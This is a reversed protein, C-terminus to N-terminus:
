CNPGYNHFKIFLLKYLLCSIKSEKGCQLRCLFCVMRVKTNVIVPYRGLDAYVICSPTTQKLHLVHKGFKSHVREILYLNEEGWIESGYLLISLVIRDFM